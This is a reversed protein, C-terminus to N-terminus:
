GPVYDKMSESNRINVNKYVEEAYQNKPKHVLHVVHGHASGNCQREMKQINM